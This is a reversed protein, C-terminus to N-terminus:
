RCKSSYKYIVVLLKLPLIVQKKAFFQVHAHEIMISELKIDIILINEIRLKVFNKRHHRLRLTGVYYYVTSTIM